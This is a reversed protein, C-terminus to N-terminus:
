LTWSNLLVGLDLTNVVGDCNLDPLCPLTGGCGPVTGPISWASLLVGLDLTNVVGDLNFDASVANASVLSTGAIPTGTPSTLTTPPTHARFMVDPTPDAVIMTFNLTVLLASGTTPTQGAFVNIGAALDVNGSSATIPTILPSGFPSSTYSGSNLTMRAPDFHLFAQFGAVPTAGPNVLWLTASFTEGASFCHNPTLIRLTPAPGPAGTTSSGAVLCASVVGAAALYRRTM